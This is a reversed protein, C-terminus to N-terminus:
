ELDVRKQGSFTSNDSSRLFVCSFSSPLFFLYFYYSDFAFHLFHNQVSGMRYRQKSGAIGKGSRQRIVMQQDKLVCHTNGRQVCCRLEWREMM